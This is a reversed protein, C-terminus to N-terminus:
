RKIHHYKGLEETVNNNVATSPTSVRSPGSHQYIKLSKMAYRPFSSYRKWLINFFVQLLLRMYLQGEQKVGEKMEVERMETERMEEKM